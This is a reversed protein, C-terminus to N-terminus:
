IRYRDKYFIPMSSALSEPHRFLQILKHM